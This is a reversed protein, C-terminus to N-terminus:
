CTLSSRASGPCRNVTNRTTVPWLGNLGYQVDLGVSLRLLVRRGPPSSRVGYTQSRRVLGSAEGALRSHEVVEVSSIRSNSSCRIVGGLLGPWFQSTQTCRGGRRLGEGYFMAALINMVDLACYITSM